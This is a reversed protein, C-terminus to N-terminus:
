SALNFSNFMFPKALCHRFCSGFLLWQWCYKFHRDWPANVMRTHVSQIFQPWSISTPFTSSHKLFNGSSQSQQPTAAVAIEERGYNPPYGALDDSSLLCWGFLRKPAEARLIGLQIKGVMLLLAPSSLIGPTNLGVRIGGYLWFIFNRYRLAWLVLLFLIFHGSLSFLTARQVRGMGRFPSIPCLMNVPLPFFHFCCGRHGVLVKSRGASFPSSCFFDEQSNCTWWQAMNFWTLWVLWTLWMYMMCILCLVMRGGQRAWAPCLTNAGHLQEGPQKPRPFGCSLNRAPSSLFPFTSAVDQQKRMMEHLFPNSLFYHMTFFGGASSLTSRSM